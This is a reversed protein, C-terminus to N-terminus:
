VVLQCVMDNALWQQLLAMAQQPTEEESYHDLLSECMASFDGDSMMMKLACEEAASIARYQSILDKRWILWCAPDQVRAPPTEENSLAQWIQVSNYQMNLLQVSDHFQVKLGPWDDLDM